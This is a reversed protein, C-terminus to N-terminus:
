PHPVTELLVLWVWLDDMRREESEEIGCLFLGALYPGGWGGGSPFAVEGYVRRLLLINLEGWIGGPPRCFSFM